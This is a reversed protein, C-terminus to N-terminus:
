FIVLIFYVASLVYRIIDMVEYILTASLSVEVSLINECM